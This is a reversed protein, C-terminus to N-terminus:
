VVFPFKTKGYYNSEYYKDHLTRCVRTYKTKADETQNSTLKIDENFKKFQKKM